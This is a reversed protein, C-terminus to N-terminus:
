KLKKGEQFADGVKEGVVRYALAASDFMIPELRGLDIRGDGDLISEDASMNVVEGVIRIEGTDTEQMDHLRCELTLPFEEFLPADVHSSPFAHFGAKDVKQEHLGSVIGFYDAQVMTGKTAFSVTFARKLTINDRTKRVHGINIAVHRESCQGGWAVNMADPVGNEDYTGIILVPLPTVVPNKTFNKRM